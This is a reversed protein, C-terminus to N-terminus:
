RANIYDSGVEELVLQLKVRSHGPPLPSGRRNKPRNRPLEAYSVDHPPHPKFKDLAEYSTHLFSGMNLMGVRKQLASRQMVHDTRTHVNYSVFLLKCNCILYSNIFASTPRAIGIFIYNLKRVTIFLFYSILASAINVQCHSNQTSFVASYYYTCTSFNTLIM